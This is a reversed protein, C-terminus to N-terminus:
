CPDFPLPGGKSSAMVTFATTDYQFEIEYHTGTADMASTHGLRELLAACASLQVPQWPLTMPCNCVLNIVDQMTNIDDLQSDQASPTLLQQEGALSPTM